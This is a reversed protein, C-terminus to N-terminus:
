SRSGPGRARTGSGRGWVRRAAIWRSAHDIAAGGDPENHLEHYAGPWERLEADVDELQSFTRTAAACTLVDETGHMLLLPCRPPDARLLEGVGLLEVGLRASVRDHVLPDALYAGLVRPDRCLGELPLGSALTARPALRALLQALAVKWRPPPTGPALAPSSAIVGALGEGFRSGYLLALAGGMSHGWVLTPGPLELESRAARLAAELDGVLEDLGAHGRKGDSRGHGRLDPACVACGAAVIRRAVRAHRGAHEGLGHILLVTGRVEGPGPSFLRAFVREQTADRRERTLWLETELPALTGGGHDALSEGSM